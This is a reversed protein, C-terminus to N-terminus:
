PNAGELTVRVILYIVPPPVAAFTGDLVTVLMTVAVDVAVSLM